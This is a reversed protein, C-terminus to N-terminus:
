KEKKMRLSSSISRHNGTFSHLTFFRSHLIIFEPLAFTDGGMLQTLASFALYRNSSLREQNQKKELKYRNRSSYEPTFRRRKKAGM